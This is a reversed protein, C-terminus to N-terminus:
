QKGSRQEEEAVVVEEEVEKRGHERKLELRKAMAHRDLADGMAVLHHLFRRLLLSNAPGHGSERICIQSLSLLRSKQHGRGLDDERARLDDRVQLRAEPHDKKGEKEATKSERGMFKKM